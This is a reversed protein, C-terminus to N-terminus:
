SGGEVMKPTKEAIEETLEFRIEKRLIFIATLNLILLLGGCLSMITLVHASNIFAFLPFAVSGYAYYLLPGKKPSLYKACKLGVAFFAIITSYGLLFLFLPMFIHMFPFYHSLGKQVIMMSDVPEQWVGTMLIIGISLTCVVFTDLFIALIGLSAQKEAHTESSESHIVSSYGIGIDGSYCGRSVGMSITLAVSSGAFAGLAAQPTFAAHLVDLLIAPIHTINLAIVWLSMAMYFILFLPMVKACIGAVRKVGGRVAFLILVMLTAIIFLKPVHWNFAISDTIVDFMYIEVGYFCMLVCFLSSVWKYGFAKQLFYMPGGDFGGQANKQRTKMGLYVEAYKLLMGLFGAVWVWLLAGPGGLQVATCIGVVNGIGICGGIAASFARLPPVGRKKNDAAMFMTAFLRVIKPFARVQFFRSKVTFFLGLIAIIVFNVHSWLLDNFSQFFQMLSHSM